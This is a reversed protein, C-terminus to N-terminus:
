MSGQFRTVTQFISIFCIHLKVVYFICLFVEDSRINGLSTNSKYTVSLKPYNGVISNRYIGVDFIYKCLIPM